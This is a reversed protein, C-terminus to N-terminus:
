ANTIKRFFHYLEKALQESGTILNAHIWRWDGTLNGRNRSCLLRWAHWGIIVKKRETSNKGSAQEVFRLMEHFDVLSTNKEDCLKSEIDERVKDISDVYECLGCNCLARFAPGDLPFAHQYGWLYADLVRMNKPGYGRRTSLTAVNGPTIIGGWKSFYLEIFGFFRDVNYAAPGDVQFGYGKLFTKTEGLNSLKKFGSMDPHAQFLRALAVSLNYDSTRQSLGMTIIVRHPERTAYQLETPLETELCLLNHPHIQCLGRYAHLLRGRCSVSM